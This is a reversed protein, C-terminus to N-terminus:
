DNKIKYIMGKITTLDDPNKVTKALVNLLQLQSNQHKTKENEKALESIAEGCLYCYNSNTPIAKKCCPCLVFKKEM